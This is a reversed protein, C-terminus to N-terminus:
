REFQDLTKNKIMEQYPIKNKLFVKSHTRDHSKSVNAFSVNPKKTCTEFHCRDSLYDFPVYRGSSNLRFVIKKGCTTCERILHAM